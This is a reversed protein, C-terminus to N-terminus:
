DSEGVVILSEEQKGAPQTEPQGASKDLLPQDVLFAEIRALILPLPRRYYSFKAHVAAAFISKVREVDRGLVLAGIIDDILKFKESEEPVELWVRHVLEAGIMLASEEDCDQGGLVKLICKIEPTSRKGYYRVIWWLAPFDISVFFYNTIIM